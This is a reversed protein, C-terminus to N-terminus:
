RNHQDRRRDTAARRSGRCRRARDEPVAIRTARGRGGQKRIQAAVLRKERTLPGSIGESLTLRPDVV